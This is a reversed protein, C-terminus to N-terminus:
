SRHRGWPTTEAGAFVADCSDIASTIQLLYSTGPLTDREYYWTSNGEEELAKALKETLQFAKETHSLFILSMKGNGQIATIRSIKYDVSGLWLFEGGVM